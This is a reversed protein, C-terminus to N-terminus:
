ITTEFFDEEDEDITLTSETTSPLEESPVEVPVEVVESPMVEEIPMDSASEEVVDEVVM